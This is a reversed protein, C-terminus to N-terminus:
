LSDENPGNESSIVANVPVNGKAKCLFKSHRPGSKCKTCGVFDCNRALHGDDNRLCNFCVGKNKILEYRKELIKEGLFIPCRYVPHDNECVACLNRDDAQSHNEDSIKHSYAAHSGISM